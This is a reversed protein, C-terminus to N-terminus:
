ATRWSASAHAGCTEDADVVDCELDAVEVGREVEVPAQEGELEAAADWAHREEIEAVLEEGDGLAAALAGVVAAV